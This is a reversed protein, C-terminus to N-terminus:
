RWLFSGHCKHSQSFIYLPPWLPLTGPLATRRASSSPLLQKILVLVPSSGFLTHGHQALRRAIARQRRRSWRSWLNWTTGAPTAPPIEPVQRALGDRTETHTLTPIHTHTHSRPRAHMRACVQGFRLDSSPARHAGCDRCVRDRCHVAREVAQRAGGRASSTMTLVIIELDSACVCESARVCACVCRCLPAARGRRAHAHATTTTTAFLSVTAAVVKNAARKERCSSPSHRAAAECQPVLPVDELDVRGDGPLADVCTHRTNHQITHTGSARSV